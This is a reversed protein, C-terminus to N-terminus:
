RKAERLLIAFPICALLCLLGFYHGFCVFITKLQLLSVEAVFYYQQFLPSTVAMRGLPDIITSVGTNASRALSRRNEVARFVTMSLHQWPASSRGFWADNTINVLLNAGGSTWDRALKPFISEFCILVGIEASQCSLPSAPKGASFNGINEVLPGPLSLYNSFPVYEGFPVLHQKDYRGGIEGDPTFIYASNYYLIDKMPQQSKKIGTIENFPAGSLLWINEKTILQKKLKNFYPNDSILFPLATEPWVLLTPSEDAHKVAQKSLETYIDITELRMAPSWKQDQEINGQVVAIKIKPSNEIVESVQHYRM